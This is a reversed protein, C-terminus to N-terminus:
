YAKFAKCICSFSEYDTFYMHIYAKVKESGLLHIEDDQMVANYLDEETGDIVEIGNEDDYYCCDSDWDLIMSLLKRIRIEANVQAM